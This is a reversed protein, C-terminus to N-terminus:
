NLTLNGKSKRHAKCFLQSDVGGKRVLIWNNFYLSFPVVDAAIYAYYLLLFTSLFYKRIELLLSPLPTFYIGDFEGCIRHSRM